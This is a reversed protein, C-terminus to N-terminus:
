FCFPKIFFYKDIYKVPNAVHIYRPYGYVRRSNNKADVIDGDFVYIFHKM